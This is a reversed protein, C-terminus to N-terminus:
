KETVGKVLLSSVTVVTYGKEEVTGKVKDFVGKM